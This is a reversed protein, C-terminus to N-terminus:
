FRTVTTSTNNLTCTKVYGNANLSPFRVLTYSYCLNVRYGASGSSYSNSRLDSTNASYIKNSAVSGAAFMPKTAGFDKYIEKGYYTANAYGKFVARANSVVVENVNTGTSKTQGPLITITPQAGSGINIVQVKSAVAASSSFVRWAGFSAFAVVVLLALLLHHSFGMSNLKRPVISKMKIKLKVM